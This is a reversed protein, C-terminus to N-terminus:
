GPKGTPSDVDYMRICSRTNMSRPIIQIDELTIKEAHRIWIGYADVDGFTNNEPYQFLYEEIVDPVNVIEKNDKYTVNFDRVAINTVPKRVVAGDKKENIFGFILSPVEAETAMIQEIVINDISGGWFASETNDSYPVGYRNRMNLCIFLPCTVKNMRINRVTVNSIHSGDASEISIGSVTGPYIDPLCFDCNEVVIDSIDYRTETGIKFSNMVTLVTCDHIYLDSMSRGTHEPNKTVIGDDATSIFCHDIEVHNSGTIDIGDTNAVHRNNNIVINRVVINDSTDLNLTWAFADELIINEITVNRAKNIWVLFEPRPIDPLGEEYKDVAYRIRQRYHYRLAYDPLDPISTGRLALHSVVLPDLLPKQKPEYVFWEGNGCIKGGGTIRINTVEKAIILAKDYRSCNKSGVLASDGAIHLTMNDCLWVSGTRYRGGEVLVTGGGAKRCDEIAMMIAATNLMDNDAVAGYDRIAFINKGTPVAARSDIYEEFPLKEYYDGEYINGFEPYTPIDKEFTGYHKLDTSYAMALGSTPRSLDIVNM